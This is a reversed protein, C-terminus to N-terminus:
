TGSAQIMALIRQGVPKLTAVVDKDAIYGQHWAFAVAVVAFLAMAVAAEALRVIAVFPAVAVKACTMAVSPAEFWWPRAAARVQDAGLVTGRAIGDLSEAVGPAPRPQRAPTDDRPSATM